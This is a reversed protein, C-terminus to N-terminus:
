EIIAVTCLFTSCAAVASSDEIVDHNVSHSRLHQVPNPGEFLNTVFNGHALPHDTPTVTPVLVRIYKYSLASLKFAQLCLPM